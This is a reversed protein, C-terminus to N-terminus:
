PCPRWTCPGACGAAGAACRGTDRSGGATGPCLAGTGGLLVIGQGRGPGTGAPGGGPHCRDAGRDGSRQPVAGGPPGTGRQKGSGRPVGPGPRCDGPGALRYAAPHLGPSGPELGLGSPQTGAGEPGGTAPAAPAVGATGGAGTGGGAPFGRRLCVGRRLPLAAQADLRDTKALQGSAQAFARVRNPHALHVPIGARRLSQVLPEEYGGTPECVVLGANRAALWELLAAIGEADNAFSHVQGSGASADLRAKAVDIGAVLGGPTGPVTVTAAVTM